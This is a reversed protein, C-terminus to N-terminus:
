VCRSTYLLCPSIGSLRALDANDASAKVTRGFTTRNLFWGLLLSLVPVVLLVTLEPGTVRIGAVDDWVRGVAVPYRAAQTTELDPFSRVVAQALQAIGITAVLLIVRPARFLRRVVILEASAAFAAGVLVSLLVQRKYM